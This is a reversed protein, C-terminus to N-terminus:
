LLLSCCLHKWNTGREAASRWASSHLLPFFVWADREWVLQSAQAATGLFGPRTLSKLAKSPNLLLLQFIATISGTDTALSIHWVCLPSRRWPKLAKCNGANKSEQQVKENTVEKKIRLGLKTVCQCRSHTQSICGSFFQFLGQLGPLVPSSFDFKLSLPLLTPSNPPKKDIWPHLLSCAM